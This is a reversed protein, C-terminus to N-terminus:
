IDITHNEINLMYHDVIKEIYMRHDFLSADNDEIDCMHILSNVLIKDRVFDKEINKMDHLMDWNCMVSHFMTHIMYILNQKDERIEDNHFAYQYVTNYRHYYQHFVYMDNM